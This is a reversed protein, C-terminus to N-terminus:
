GGTILWAHKLQAPGRGGLLRVGGQGYIAPFLKAAGVLCRAATLAPKTAAGELARAVAGKLREGHAELGPHQGPIGSTPTV